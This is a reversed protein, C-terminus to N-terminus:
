SQPGHLAEAFVEIASFDWSSGFSVQVGTPTNVVTTNKALAQFCLCGVLESNLFQSRGCITCRTKMEAKSIKLAPLAKPAKQKPQKTPAQPGQPAGQAIPMAQHGPLEAKDVKTAAQPPVSPASPPKTIDSAIPPPPKAAAPQTLSQGPAMGPKRGPIANIISMRHATDASSMGQHITALPPRKSIATPALAPDVAPKAAFAPKAGAPRPAVPNPQQVLSQGPATGPKRGPIAAIISMRHAQDAQSPGEYRAKRLADTVVRSRVLLDISKGLKQLDLGRLEAAPAVDDLGLAVAVHSVMRYISASSFPITDTGVTLAGSYGAESKSFELFSEPIGPVPGTYGYSGALASWSLLTRPVLVHALAESKQVARLLAAAGDAGLVEQLFDVQFRPIM